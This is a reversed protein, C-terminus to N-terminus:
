RFWERYMMKNANVSESMNMMYFDRNDDHGIYKQYLRPVGNTSRKKEDPERMYWNSVLEMGDPNILTCLIVVDNLIRLTEPDSKTNLRYITEILQQAGLVETAHLGGDIWVVPKGDRALQRAQEDTLNEALALKRNAEKILPLRRQNEPSTIIATYETRGEETKGIETVIMRESQVDLKKLYDVYQTYNVLRYNDGIAYGFQDQPPTVRPAATKNQAQPVATAFTIAIAVVATACAKLGAQRNLM